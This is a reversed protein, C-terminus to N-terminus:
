QGLSERIAADKEDSTDIGFPCLELAHWAALKLEADQQAAFAEDAKLKGDPSFVEFNAVEPWELTDAFPTGKTLAANHFCFRNKANRPVVGPNGEERIKCSAVCGEWDQQLVCRKLNPFKTPWGAGVAWCMSMIALQADAPFSDWDPFTKRMQTENATLRVKVLRDIEDETLRCKTAARAYKWHLKAYHQAGAKLLNWDATVQAMDAVSGDELTWRIEKALYIPDILCGVACTILGLVDCYMADVRGELPASFAHYSEYSFKM